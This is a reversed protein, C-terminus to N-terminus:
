HVQFAGSGDLAAVVAVELVQEFPITVGKYESPVHVDFDHSNSSSAVIPALGKSDLWVNLTVAGDYTKVVDRVLYDATTTIVRVYAHNHYEAVQLALGKRFYDADVMWSDYGPCPDAGPPRPRDAHCADVRGDNAAGLAVPGTEGACTSPREPRSGTRARRQPPRSSNNDIGCRLVTSRNVHSTM